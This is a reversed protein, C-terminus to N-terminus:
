MLHEEDKSISWEFKFFKLINASCIANNLALVKVVKSGPLMVYLPM